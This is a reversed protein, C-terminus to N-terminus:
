GQLAWRALPVHRTQHLLSHVLVFERATWTIPEIAQGAVAHDDYLLTVHPTFSSAVWRGLGARKMATGLAEQFVKLPTEGETGLLVFPLKRSRRFSAARDFVLDFPPMAVSAAAEGARTLIDAPLGAHDGVHHLTVHLRGTQLLKGSLGHQQRLRGALREIQAAADAEPFLAFFLRDTPEPAPDFGPLSPQDPMQGTSKVSM